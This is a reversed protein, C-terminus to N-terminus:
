QKGPQRSRDGSLLLAWWRNSQVLLRLDEHHAVYGVFWIIRHRENAHKKM